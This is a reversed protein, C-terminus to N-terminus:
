MSRLRASPLVLRSASRQRLRWRARVDPVQELWGVRVLVVAMGMLKKVYFRCFRCCQIARSYGLAQWSARTLRRRKPPTGPSARAAPSAPAAHEAIGEVIHDSTRPSSTSSAGRRRRWGAAAHAANAGERSVATTTLPRDFHLGTAGTSLPGGPAPPVTFGRQAPDHGIRGFSGSRPQAVARLAM